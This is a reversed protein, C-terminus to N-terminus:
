RTKEYWREIQQVVLHSNIPKSCYADMGVGFCKQVDEKTANATLAIIPLRKKGHEREWKRILDTAEFGDMEPMQCDMLVVDYKNKRVASCAELGNNAIDCTFGAEAMLSKAVIQNIRNDEVILVHVQGALSSKSPTGSNLPQKVPGIKHIKPKAPKASDNADDPIGTDFIGSQHVKSDDKNKRKEGDGIRNVVADFLAASFIPKDISEVRSKDLVRHEDDESLQFLLVIQAFLVDDKAEEWEFLKQVLDVGNGDALTYDIIFLDFPKQSKWQEESLRLAEEGSDCIVYEMGWSHLQTSLAECHIKNNVVVLVSRGKIGYEEAIERNIFAVCRRGEINPCNKEITGFCKKERICQLTSPECAFPIKFWFTSGKELESEVGIEGGMLQVLKLSIALGLGTGGYIRATSTDVQAFAEFLRNIRDQPIGIGTDMVSFKINVSTEDVTEMAVNIWVGGQETFKVANGALNLLIQRIRGSDGEVIRPLYQGFSVVLELKKSNTRSALSAIVSGVTASLDFPESAIELRGAEIKSFDLIDNILFLLTNGSSNILQVYESQKANLPTGALLDSLGIVGNLPTRIEHSMHALFESKAKNAEEAENKAKELESEHKKSERLDRIYGAVIYDNERQVRVLTVECPIPIGDLRQHLWEFCQNGMKFAAAIKEASKESSLRGDPQYKPSLEWFRGICEQKDPIGFLKLMAPNCDIMRRDKDLFTCGLPTADLMIRARENAEEIAQAMEYRETIDLLIFIIQIRKGESDRVASVTCDIWRIDGSKQRITIDHRFQDFEEAYFAARQQLFWDDTETREDYITDWPRKGILESEPFGTLTQFAVNAFSIVGNTDAFVIPVSGSGIVSQMKSESQELRRTREDILKELVSRYQELIEEDAKRQTIDRIICISAVVEGSPATIPYAFHELWMGPKAEMPQKYHVSMATKGTEFMTPAPCEDCVSDRCSTVFCKKGVLPLHESYMAEFAPNAKIITYAPDIVFVGESISALINTIFSEQSKVASTLRVIDTVDRVSELVGTLEGTHQDFLPTSRLLLHKQTREDFYTTEATQRTNLTQVVPCFECPEDRGFIRQHCVHGELQGTLNFVSTAAANTQQIVFNGDLLYLGDEMNQFLYDLKEKQERNAEIAKEQETVDHEFSFAGCIKNHEDCLPIVQTEFFGGDISRFTVKQPLNKLAEHYLKAHDPDNAFYDDIFKGIANQPDFAVALNSKGVVFTVRAAHDVAIVSTGGHHVM